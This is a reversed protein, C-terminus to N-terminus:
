VTYDVTNGNQAMMESALREEEDLEEAPIEELERLNLRRVKMQPKSDNSEGPQNQRGQELNKEFGKTQVSVEIAEVRVGQERFTEKLQIMQSELAEKVVENETTFHATIVGDKSAVHIQLTGLNEPRLQMELQSIGDGVNVKMFDMIQNMIMETEASFYGGAPIASTVNVASQQNLLNQAFTGQANNAFANENNKANESQGNERVTMTHEKAGNVEIEEPKGNTVNKVETDNEAMDAMEVEAGSVNETMTAQELLQMIEERGLGTQQQIEALGEELTKNLEQFVAYLKENTLLSLSDTEGGAALLIQMLNEANLLDVPEMGLEGMLMQVEEASMGLGEAIQVLLQGALEEANELAEDQAAELTEAESQEVKTGEADVRPEEKIKGESSKEVKTRSTVQAKEAVPEETNQSQSQKQLVDSFNNDTREKQVSQSAVNLMVSMVDNSVPTSTM